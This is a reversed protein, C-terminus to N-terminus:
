ANCCNVPFTVRFNKTDPSLQEIGKRKLGAIWREGDDLLVKSHVIPPAGEPMNQRAIRLLQTAIGRRRMAPHVEVRAIPLGGEEDPASGPGHIFGLTASSSTGFNGSVDAYFGEPSTRVDYHLRGGPTDVYSKRRRVGDRDAPKFAHEGEFDPDEAFSFQDSNLM